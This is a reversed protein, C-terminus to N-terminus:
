IKVIKFVELFLLDPSKLVAIQVPLKSAISAPASIIHKHNRNLGTASSSKQVALFVSLRDSAQLEVYFILQDPKYVVRAM